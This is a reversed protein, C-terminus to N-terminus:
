IHDTTKQDSSIIHISTEEKSKGREKEEAYLTTIGGKKKKGTEAMKKKGLFNSTISLQNREDIGAHAPLSERKGRKKRQGLSQVSEEERRLPCTRNRVKFLPQFIRNKKL